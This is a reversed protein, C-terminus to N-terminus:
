WQEWKMNQEQRMNKNWTKGKNDWKTMESEMVENNGLRIECDYRSDNHM